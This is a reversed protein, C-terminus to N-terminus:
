NQGTKGFGVTQYQYTVLNQSVPPVV